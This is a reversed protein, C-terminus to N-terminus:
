CVDGRMGRKLKWQRSSSHLLLKEVRFLRPASVIRVECSILERASVALLAKQGVPLTVAMFLASVDHDDGDMELRSISVDRSVPFSVTVGRPHEETTGHAGLPRRGPLPMELIDM